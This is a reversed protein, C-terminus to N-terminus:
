SPTSSCAFVIIYKGTGISVDSSEGDGWLGTTLVPLNLLTIAAQEVQQRTTESAFSIYALLGCSDDTGGVTAYQLENILLKCERFRQVVVSVSGGSRSM